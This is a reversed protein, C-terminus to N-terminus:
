FNYGIKISFSNTEKIYTNNSTKYLDSTALNFSTNIFMNWYNLGIGFKWRFSPRYFTDKYVKADSDECQTLKYNFYPGTFLDLSFSKNCIFNYGFIASIGLGFESTHGAQKPIHFNDINTDPTTENLFYIYSHSPDTKHSEFYASLEPAVFLGKLLFFKYGGSITAGIFKTPNYSNGEKENISFDTGASIFFGNNRSEQANAFIIVSLTMFTILIKKM